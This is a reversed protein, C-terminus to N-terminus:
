AGYRLYVTQRRTHYRATQVTYLLGAAYPLKCITPIGDEPTWLTLQVTLSVSRYNGPSYKFGKKFIANFNASKWDDPIDGSSLSKRFLCSVIDAIVDALEILMKKQRLGKLKTDVIDSIIYFDCLEETSGFFIGKAEPLEALNEETSISTFFDNLLSCMNQSDSIM